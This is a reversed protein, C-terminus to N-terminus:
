AFVRKWPSPSACLEMLCRGEWQLLTDKDHAMASGYQRALTSDASFGFYLFLV